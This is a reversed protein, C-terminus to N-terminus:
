IKTYFFKNIVLDNLYTYDKREGYERYDVTEDEKTVLYITLANQNNVYTSYEENSDSTNYEFIFFKNTFSNTIKIENDNILENVIIEICNENFGILNNKNIVIHKM